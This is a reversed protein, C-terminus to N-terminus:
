DEDVVKDIPLKNIIRQYADLHYMADNLMHQAYRVDKKISNSHEGANKLADTADKLVEIWGEYEEAVEYVDDALDGSYYTDRIYRSKM